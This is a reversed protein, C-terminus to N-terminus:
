VQPRPYQLKVHVTEDAHKMIFAQGYTRYGNAIVQVLVIGPEFGQVTIEGHNDTHLEVQFPHKSMRGSETAMQKLVVGAGVVPERRPSTVSVTVRVTTVAPSAPAPAAPTQAWVGNLSSLGLALGFAATRAVAALNGQM